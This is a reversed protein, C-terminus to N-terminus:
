VLEASTQVETSFCCINFFFGKEGLVAFFHMLSFLLVCRIVTMYLLSQSM